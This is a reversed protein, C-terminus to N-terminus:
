GAREQFCQRLRRLGEDIRTTPIAGYGVVLGPQVPGGAGYMALPAIQVGLASARRLVQGLDDASATTATATVTVHLGAASPIVQLHDAFQDTLAAVIQQHRQQYIARM